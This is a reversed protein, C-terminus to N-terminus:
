VTVARILGIALIVVFIGVLAAYQILARNKQPAYAVNRSDM